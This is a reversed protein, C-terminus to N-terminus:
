HEGLEDLVSRVVELGVAARPYGAYVPEGFRGAFWPRVHERPLQLQGSLADLGREYREDM